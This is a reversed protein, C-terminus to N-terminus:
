ESWKKMDTLIEELSSVIKYHGKWEKELKIQGSKKASDLIGGTRKSVANPNKIEYWYNFNDKGVLIDDVDLYVTYGLKRLASVIDSQNADVKAAQRYKAM